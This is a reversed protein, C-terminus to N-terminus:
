PTDGQAPAQFSGLALHRMLLAPLEFAADAQLALACADALAAGEHLAQLWLYEGESLGQFEVELDRQAVLVRTGQAWDVQELALAADPQHAQWLQLV